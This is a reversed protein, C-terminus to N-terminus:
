VVLIVTLRITLSVGFGVLCFLYLDAFLTFMITVSITFGAFAVFLCFWAFGLGICVLTILELHIM